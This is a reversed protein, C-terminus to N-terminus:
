FSFAKFSHPKITIEVVTADKGYKRNRFSMAPRAVTNLTEGTELNKVQKVDLGLLVKVTVEKDLFSEV